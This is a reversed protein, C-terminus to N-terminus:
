TSEQQWEANQAALTVYLLMSSSLSLTTTELVPVGVTGELVARVKPMRQEMKMRFDEPSEVDLMWLVTVTLASFGLLSLATGHMLARMAIQSAQARAAASGPALRTADM